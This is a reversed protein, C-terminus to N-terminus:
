PLSEGTVWGQTQSHRIAHNSEGHRLHPLSRKAELALQAGDQAFM